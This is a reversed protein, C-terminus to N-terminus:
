SKLDIHLYIVRLYQKLQCMIYNMKGDSLITEVIIVCNEKYYTYLHKQANTQLM